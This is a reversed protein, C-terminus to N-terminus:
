MGFDILIGKSSLSVPGSQCNPFDRAWAVGVFLATFSIKAM